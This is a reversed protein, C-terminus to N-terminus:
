EGTPIRSKARIRRISSTQVGYRQALVLSKEESNQIELREEPTLKRYTKTPEIGTTRSHRQGSRILGVMIPSISYEQALEANSRSDSVIDLVQPISLKM